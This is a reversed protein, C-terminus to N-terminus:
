EERIFKVRPPSILNKFSAWMRAFPSKKDQDPM